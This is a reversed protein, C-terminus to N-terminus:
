VQSIGNGYSFGARGVYGRHNFVVLSPLPSHHALSLCPVPSTRSARHCRVYGLLFDNSVVMRDRPDSPAPWTIVDDDHDGLAALIQEEEANLQQQQQQHQKAFAKQCYAAGKGLAAGDVQALLVASLLGLSSGIAKGGEGGAAAVASAATPASAATAVATPGRAEERLEGAGEAEAQAKSSRVKGGGLVDYDGGEGADTPGAGGLGRLGLLMGGSTYSCSRGLMVLGWHQLEKGSPQQLLQQLMQSAAQFHDAASQLQNLQFLAKAKSATASIILIQQLQYLDPATPLVAAGAASRAARPAPSPAGKAARAARTALAAPSSAEAAPLMGELISLATDAYQMCAEMEGQQGAVRSRLVSAACLLLSQIKQQEEQQQQQHHHQKQQQQQQQQHHHHKQQQQKQDHGHDHQRHLHEAVSILVAAADQGKTPHDKKHAHLELDAQILVAAVSGAAAAGAAAAAATYADRDSTAAAAVTAEARSATTGLAVKAAAKVSMGLSVDLAIQEFATMQMCTSDTKCKSSGVADADAAATANLSSVDVKDGVASTVDKQMALLTYAGKYVGHVDRPSFGLTIHFGAFGWGSDVGLGQRALVGSPWAVAVYVATASGQQCSSLGLPVWDDELLLEQARSLLEPQSLGLEATVREIENPSLLTLHYGPGDRQQRGAALKPLDLSLPRRGKSLISSSSRSHMDQTTTNGSPQLLMLQQLQDWYAAAVADVAPGVLCMVGHKLQLSSSGYSKSSSSSSSSGAAATAKKDDRSSSSSALVPKSSGSSQSGTSSSAGAAYAVKGAKPTVEPVLKGGGIAVRQLSAEQQKQQHPRQVHEQQQQRGQQQQKQQQEKPQQVRLGQQQPQKQQKQQQPLEQPVQQPLLLLQEQIVLEATGWLDPRITNTKM